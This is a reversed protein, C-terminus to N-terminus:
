LRGADLDKEEAVCNYLRHGCRDCTEDYWSFPAGCSPGSWREKRTALWRAMGLTRIAELNHLVISHHPHRDNRFAVIRPCPYEACEVCFEVQKGEACRKIECDVCYVCHTDSKCGGCRLQETQMEWEAAAHRLRDQQNALLVACAGCYLGCHTDYRYEM